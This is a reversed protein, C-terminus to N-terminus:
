FTYRFAIMPAGAAPDFGSGLSIGKSQNQSQIGGKGPDSLLTWVIDSVWVGVAVYASLTSIKQQSVAQDYYSEFQGQDTSELYLNYHDVAMRNFAVTSAIAGYGIVGKLWHPKGPNMASLGWGPFVVSRLLAAPKTMTSRSVSSADRMPRVAPDPVKEETKPNMLEGLVQVYIGADLNVVDKEYDWAIQRKSGGRINDGVDGRLSRANLINGNDDTVEIWIRYLDSSTSQLIEYSIIVLNGQLELDPKSLQVTGQALMSSSSGLFFGALAVLLIRKM